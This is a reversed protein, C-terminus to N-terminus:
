HTMAFANAGAADNPLQKTSIEHLCSREHGFDNARRRLGSRWAGCNRQVPWLVLPSLWGPPISRDVGLYGARHKVGM